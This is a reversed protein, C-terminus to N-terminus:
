QTVEEDTSTTNDAAPDDAWYDSNTTEQNQQAEAEEAAKQADEEAQSKRDSEVSENFEGRGGALKSADSDITDEDDRFLVLIEELSKRWENLSSAEAKDLINPNKQMLAAINSPVAYFKVAEQQLGPEIYKDAYITFGYEKNLYYDIMCGQYTNWEIENLYLKVTNDNIAYIRKHPLVIYDDGYPLTVRIDIYDGVELGVTMRDLTIDRDRMDDELEEDMFMDRYLASGPEVHVKYFRGVIDNTNTIYQDTLLSSYTKIPTLDEAKVEDGAKVAHSVTYVTVDDGYKAITANLAAVEQLYQEAQEQNMNRWFFFQFVNVGLLIVAVIIAALNIKRM